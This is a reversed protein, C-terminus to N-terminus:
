IFNVHEPPNKLSWLYTNIEDMRCNIRCSQPNLENDLWLLSKKRKNGKWIEHFSEEYINGYLFEEKGIYVSCGWVNGSADIYSWFPLAYCKLYTRRKVDWKEMTKIRFIVSFDSTNFRSLEEALYLYDSYKIDKYIDTNSQSHQSYPKVVLYNLGIDSLLQVLLVIEDKNEPLLLIQAGITCRYRNNNKIKIADSMNLIVKDFDSPKTQHIKAYTQNTGGNISVKIWDVYGVIKESISSNMLVGNTTIAVDIGSNKTHRIISDIDRHLFPEGEGAYMISKVGLQGMETLRDKFIKTDLSRNQYGVFDLGCFLCRHNCSGTPSVEMYIPYINKNELWNNVRNIHYILKHSDIKYKDM